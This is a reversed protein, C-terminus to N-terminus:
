KSVRMNIKGNKFCRVKYKANCHPCTVDKSKYERTVYITKEVCMRNFCRVVVAVDDEKATARDELCINKLVSQSIM